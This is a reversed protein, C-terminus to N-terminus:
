SRGEYAYGVKQKGCLSFFSVSLPFSPLWKATNAPSNIALDHSLAKVTASSKYDMWYSENM